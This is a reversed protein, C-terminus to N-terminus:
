AKRKRRRAAGAMGVLGTALLTMTAPEPTVATAAGTAGVTFGHWFENPATTFSISSYVGAFQLTGSFESGTLTTSAGNTTYSGCGWYAPTSCNNNSPVTFVSTGFDWTVPLSTRGVSILAFYPNLVPSSFNIVGSIPGDIQIFANNGGADPSTLGGQTYPNNPSYYDTGGGTLQGGVFGGTYTVNIGGITGCWNAIGGDCGSTASVWTTWTQAHAGSPAVAIATVAALALFGSRIKM